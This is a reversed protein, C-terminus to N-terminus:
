RRTRWASRGGEPHPLLKEARANDYCNGNASQPEFQNHGQIKTLKPAWARGSISAVVTKSDYRQGQDALDRTLGPSGSRGKRMALTEAVQLDLRARQHQRV